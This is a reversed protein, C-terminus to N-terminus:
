HARQEDAAMTAALEREAVGGARDDDTHFMSLPRGVVETESYDFLAQAGASWQVVMGTSDLKVIARDAVADLM